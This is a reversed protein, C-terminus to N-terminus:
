AASLLTSNAREDPVFEFADGLEMYFQRLDSPMLHDTRQSVLEIDADSVPSGLKIRPNNGYQHLHESAATFYNLFM